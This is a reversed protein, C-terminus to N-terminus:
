RRNAHILTKPISGDVIRFDEPKLNGALSELEEVVRYDYNEDTYLRAM